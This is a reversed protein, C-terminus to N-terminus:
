MIFLMCQGGDGHMIHAQVSGDDMEAICYLLAMLILEVPFKECM